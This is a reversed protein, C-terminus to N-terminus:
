SPQPPTQPRDDGSRGVPRGSLRRTPSAPKTDNYRYYAYYSKEPMPVHTLVAGLIRANVKRLGEMARAAEDRRTTAAKIVLVVGDARTALITADSALNIPPSDIVLIDAMGDLVDLTEKMRQSGLLVPPNPPLPGSPLVRLGPVATEFLVSAPEVDAERLLTTLGVHNSLRFRSHVAPRRLDADILIVQQGRQALAAALNVATTSKGESLTPSAILVRELAQDPSTFELNTCLVRYAEAAPTLSQRVIIPESDDAMGEVLPISTLTPLTTVKQVEAPSHITDDMYQLLYAAGIALLLALATNLFIIPLRSPAGPRRPLDAPEIVSIQNIASRQTDDLLSGYNARLDSLKRQLVAIEDQTDAIERASLLGTLEEQKREIETKTENIGSELETLQRAIFEQRQEEEPNLGSPSQLILQRVLEDAVAKARGPDVDEVMVEILQTNPVTRVTYDPLSTLGLTEMTAKRVPQRRLVEAYTNALQQALALDSNTPNSMDMGRGVLVTTSARYTPVIRSTAVVSIIAAVLPVLLLLWWRRRLPQILDKLEV